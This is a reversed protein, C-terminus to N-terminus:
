EPSVNGILWAGKPLCEGSGPATYNPFTCRIRLFRLELNPDALQDPTWVFHYPKCSAVPHMIFQETAQDWEGFTRLKKQQKDWMRVQLQVRYVPPDGCLSLFNRQFDLSYGQIGQWEPKQGLDPSDLYFDLTAASSGPLMFPCASVALARDQYTSLSFGYSTKTIPDTYPVVKTMSADNADYLQDLTWGQVTGDNFKFTGPKWIKLYEVPIHMELGFKTVVKEPKNWAELYKEDGRM